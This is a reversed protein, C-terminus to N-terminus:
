GVLVTLIPPSNFNPVIARLAPYQTISLGYSLSVMKGGAVKMYAGKSSLSAQVEKANMTYISFMQGPTVQFEVDRAVSTANALAKTYDGSVAGGRGYMANFNQQKCEVREKTIKNLLPLNCFMLNEVKDRYYDKFLSLINSNSSIAM